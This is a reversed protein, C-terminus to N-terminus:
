GSTPGVVSRHAHGCTHCTSGLSSVRAWGTPPPCSVRGAGSRWRGVPRTPARCRWTLARLPTSPRQALFAHPQGSLLCFATRRERARRHRHLFLKGRLVAHPARTLGPPAAPILNVSGATPTRTFGWSLSPGPCGLRPATLAGRRCPLRSRRLFSPSARVSLPASAAHAGPRPHSLPSLRRTESTPRCAGCRRSSGVGPARAERARPAPAPAERAPLDGRTHAVSALCPLSM